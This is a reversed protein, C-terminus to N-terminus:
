LMRCITPLLNMAIYLVGYPLNIGTYELLSRNILVSIGAFGGPFFGGSYVFINITIASLFASFIIVLTTKVNKKVTQNM